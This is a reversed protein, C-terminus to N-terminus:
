TTNMKKKNEGAAQLERCHKLLLESERLASKLGEKTYCGVAAHIVRELGASAWEDTVGDQFAAWAAGAAKKGNTLLEGRLSRIDPDDEPSGDKMGDYVVILEAIIDELCSDEVQMEQERREIDTRDIETREM